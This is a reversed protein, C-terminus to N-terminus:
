PLAAPRPPLLIWRAAIQLKKARSLCIRGRLVEAPRRKIKKLLSHYTSIMMGFVRRGDPELWEILQAALAQRAPDSTVIAWAWGM